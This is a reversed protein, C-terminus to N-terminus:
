ARRRSIAPSPQLLGTLRTVEIVACESYRRRRWGEWLSSQVSWLSHGSQSRSRSGNHRQSLAVTADVTVGLTQLIRRCVDHQRSATNGQRAQGTTTTGAASRASNSTSRWSIKTRAQVVGCKSLEFIAFNLQVCSCRRCLSTSLCWWPATLEGVVRVDHLLLEELHYLICTPIVIAGSPHAFAICMLRAGLLRASSSSLSTSM